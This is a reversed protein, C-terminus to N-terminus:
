SADGEPTPMLEFFAEARALFVDYDGDYVEVGVKTSGDRTISAIAAAEWTPRNAKLVRLGSQDPCSGVMFSDRDDFM